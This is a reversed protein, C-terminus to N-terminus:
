VGKKSPTTFYVPIVKGINLLNCVTACFGRVVRYVMVEERPEFTEPTLYVICSYKRTTYADPGKTKHTYGVRSPPFGRASVVFSLTIPVWTGIRAGASGEKIAERNLADAHDQAERISSFKAKAM